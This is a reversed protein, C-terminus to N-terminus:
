SPDITKQEDLYRYIMENPNAWYAHLPSDDTRTVPTPNQPRFPDFTWDIKITRRMRGMYDPESPHRGRLFLSDDSEITSQLEKWDSPWTNEHQRMHCLLMEGADWAAYAEQIHWWVYVGRGVFCFTIAIVVVVAIARPRNFISM